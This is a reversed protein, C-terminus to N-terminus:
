GQSLGQRPTHRLAATIAQIDRDSVYFGQLHVPNEGRPAYLMDGCGKLIEAGTQDILIISEKEDRLSLAIRSPIREVIAHPMIQPDLMQATLVLHIGARHGMQAICCLAREAEVPAAQILACTEDIIIVTRALAEGSLSIFEQHQHQLGNAIHTLIHLGEVPDTIVPAALHPLGNYDRYEPNDSGPSILILRVSDPAAKNLLTFVLSHVLTTKGAGPKGAILLHRLSDLNGTVCGQAGMGVVFSGPAFADLTMDAMVKSLLITSNNM